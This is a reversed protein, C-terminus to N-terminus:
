GNNGAKIVQLTSVIEQADNIAAKYIDSDKKVEYDLLSIYLAPNKMDNVTLKIQLKSCTQKQKGTMGGIVAGLGGFVLGGAVARGLSGSTVTSGDEILEYDLLDSYDYVSKSKKCRPLHFKKNVDDIYFHKGIKKTPKFRYAAVANTDRTVSEGKFLFVCGIIFLVVFAAFSGTAVVAIALAFFVISIKGNKTKFLMKIKEINEKKDM